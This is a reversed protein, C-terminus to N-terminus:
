KVYYKKNGVIYLGRPLGDVAKCAPVNRRVCTGKVNYVNVVADDAFMSSIATSNNSAKGYITVQKQGSAYCSFISASSNYRLLNHTKDGQAVIDALNNNIEIAWSANANIESQTRLHNSSSSAAYLYGSGVNFAFAGNSMGEELVIKQVDNSIAVVEDGAIEVTAVGRNNSKQNTSLAVGDCVILLTDGVTLNSVDSVLQYKDSLKSEEGGTTTNDNDEDKDSGSDGDSGDGGSNDTTGGTQNGSGDEVDGYLNFVYDVSDGWVFDALRPYDVYPNRNGQIAYVANNRAIEKESVPDERHWKLLLEVAWPKITPYTSNEYVMWTYKWTLNQYCTFMYMYTRAFDGKYQDAPEFANQSTGAITAKGVNMIGNTWTTESLEAMPYNSKRSNATQDSPNLHHLDCYANNKTGGWWSKAVSHEINMGDVVSGRTTFYRVEPSYMDAVQKQTGIVVDTAYFAWWTSNQGSGYEVTNVNKILNYLATKLTEGGHVANVSSYYSSQATVFQLAFLCAALITIHRKM